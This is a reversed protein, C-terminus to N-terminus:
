MFILLFSVTIIDKKNVAMWLTEYKYIWVARDRNGRPVLCTDMHAKKKVIVIDRALISVKGESDCQVFLDTSGTTARWQLIWLFHM